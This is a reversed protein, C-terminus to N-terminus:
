EVTCDRFGHRLEDHDVGRGVLSIASWRRQNPWPNGDAIDTVTRAGHAIWQRDEDRIALVAEFRLLDPGLDHQVSSLWDHLRDVDLVGPESLRVTQWSDPSGIVAPHVFRPDSLRRITQQPVFAGLHLLEDLKTTSLLDIDHVVRDAIAIRRRDEATPAPGGCGAGDVVALIGDLHYTRRLDHDALLTTVIVAVDCYGTTTLILHDPRQTRHGLHRLITVLDVRVACCACDDETYAAHEEAEIVVWARNLAPAPAASVVAVRRPPTFRELLRAALEGPGPGDRGTVVTVPITM